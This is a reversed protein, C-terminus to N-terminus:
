RLDHKVTTRNDPLTHTALEVGIALRNLSAAGPEHVVVVLLFPCGM